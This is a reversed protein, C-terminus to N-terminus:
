GYKTVLNDLVGVSFRFQQGTRVYSILSDFVQNITNMEVINGGYFAVEESLSSM